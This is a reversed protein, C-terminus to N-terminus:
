AFRAYIGTQNEADVNVIFYEATFEIKTAKSKNWDKGDSGNGYIYFNECQAFTNGKSRFAINDTNTNVTNEEETHEGSNEDDNKMTSLVISQHLSQIGINYTTNHSIDEGKILGVTGLDLNKDHM